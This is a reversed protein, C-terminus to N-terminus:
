DKLEWRSGAFATKILSKNTVVEHIPRQEQKRTTPELKMEAVGLFSLVQQITKEWHLQLEEYSLFLIPLKQFQELAELEQQIQEHLFAFCQKMSPTIESTTNPTEFVGDDSLYEKGRQAVHWINTKKAIIDSAMQSLWDQRRLFIVRINDVDRLLRMARRHQRHIICGNFQRFSNEILQKADFEHNGNSELGFFKPRQLIEGAVSLEDHQNLATALMHSGTRRESCIVFRVSSKNKHYTHKLSLIDNKFSINHDHLAETVLFSKRFDQHKNRGGGNFHLCTVPKQNQKTKVSGEAKDIVIERHNLQWNMTSDILVACDLKALALNFVFQNRWPISNSKMSVWNAANPFNRIVTDITNMATQTAAILGDNIVHPYDLLKLTSEGAFKQLESPDSGYLGVLAKKLNLINASDRCTLVSSPPLINLAELIGGLPRLILMDVDLCLYKKASIVKSVSYLVSKSAMNIQALNRCTVCVAGHQDILQKMKPTCNFCFVAVLADECESHMKLSTLFSELWTEYEPSAVTAICLDPVNETEINPIEIEARGLCDIFDSTIQNQADEHILLPEVWVAHCFDWQDSVVELRLEKTGRLDAKIKFLPAGPSINKASEILEGDAYINFDASTTRGSVDDNFGVFSELSNYHGDLQYTLSAPPHTSLSHKIRRNKVIVHGNEYGLCGHRGLNGFGVKKKVLPLDDLFTNSIRKTFWNTNCLSRVKSNSCQIDHKQNPRKNILQETSSRLVDDNIHKPTLYIDGPATQPKQKGGRVSTHKYLSQGRMVMYRDTNDIPYTLWDVKLYNRIKKFLAADECLTISPYGGVAEWLDKHMTVLPHSIWEPTCQNSHLTTEGWYAWFSAPRYLPTQFESIEQMTFSLRWPLYIDDDDWVAIWNGAAEQIAFNRKEGLSHFRKKCNIIRVQPYEGIITQGPCDNVILLEKNEYDQSLFMELSEHLYEPRGYTPMVCSILPIKEM